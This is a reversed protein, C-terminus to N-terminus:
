KGEVTKGCVPCIWDGKGESEYACATSGKMVYGCDCKPM